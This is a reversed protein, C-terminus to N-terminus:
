RLDAAPFSVAATDPGSVPDNAPGKLDQLLHPDLQEIQQEILLKNERVKDIISVQPYRSVIKNLLSWSEEMLLKKEAYDAAKRAKVFLSAAQRRMQVAAAEMAEKIKERAPVDYDTNFLTTFNDIAEDYRGSDLLAVASDWKEAQNQDAQLRQEILYQGEERVVNDMTQKVLERAPPELAVVLLSELLAKASAFDHAALYLGVQDMESRFWERLSDEIQWFMQWARVTLPSVPYKKELKEIRGKMGEPIERGDFRVFDKLIELYLPLEPAERLNNLGLLALQDAVWRDDGKGSEYYEALQRYDAFAEDLQGSALHLDAVLRRLSRKEASPPMNELVQRLERGAKDLQGTRLLAFGYMKRTETRVELDPHVNRLDQFAQIAEEYLGETVAQEIARESEQSHEPLKRNVGGTLLAATTLFVLECEGELYAIDEYYLQWPDVSLEEERVTPLDQKLVEELLRSYGQFLDDVASFCGSWEPPRRELLGPRM